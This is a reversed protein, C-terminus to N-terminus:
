AVFEPLNEPMPIPLWGVMCMQYAVDGLIVFDGVSMSRCPRAARHFMEVWPRGELSPMGNQTQLSLIHLANPISPNANYNPVDVVCTFDDAPQMIGRRLDAWNGEFVNYLFIRLRVSM